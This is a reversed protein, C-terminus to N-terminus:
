EYEGMPGYGLVNGTALEVAICQVFPPGNDDEYTLNLVGGGASAMTLAARRSISPPRVFSTPRPRFNM